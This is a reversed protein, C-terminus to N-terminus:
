CGAARVEKHRKEGHVDDPRDAIMAGHARPPFAHRLVDLNSRGPRREAGIHSADVEASEVLLIQVLDALRQALM